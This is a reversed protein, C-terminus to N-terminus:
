RWLQFHSFYLPRAIGPQKKEYIKQPKEGTHSCIPAPTSYHFYMNFGM